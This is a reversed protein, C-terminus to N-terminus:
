SDAQPDGQAEEESDTEMAQELSELDSAIAELARIHALEPDRDLGSYRSPTLGRAGLLRSAAGNLRNLAALRMRGKAETSAM